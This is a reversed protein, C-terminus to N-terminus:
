KTQLLKDYTTCSYELKWCEDCNWYLNHVNLFQADHEFIEGITACNDHMIRASKYIFGPHSPLRPRPPSNCFLPPQLLINPAKGWVHHRPSLVCSDFARMAMGALNAFPLCYACFTFSQVPKNQKSRISGRWSLVIPLKLLICVYELCGPAHIQSFLCRRRCM